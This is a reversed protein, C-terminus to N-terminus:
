SNSSSSSEQVIQLEDMKDLLKLTDMTYSVSDSRERQKSPTDTQSMIKNVQLNFIILKNPKEPRNVLNSFM